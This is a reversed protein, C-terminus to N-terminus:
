RMSGVGGESVDVATVVGVEPIMVPGSKLTVAVVFQTREVGSADQVARTSTLGANLVRQERSVREVFAALEDTSHSSQGPSATGRLTLVANGSQEPPYAGTIEALFITGGTLRSVSALAGAWSARKGLADNLDRAVRSMEDELKEGKAAADIREDLAQVAPVQERERAALTEQKKMAGMYSLAIIGLALAGGCLTAIRGRRAGLEERRCSSIFPPIVDRMAIADALDGLPDEIDADGRDGGTADVPVDLYATLAAALGRISAGPGVLRISTRHLEGDALAFRLTQRAEVGFRQIASQLLPLVAEARLGLAPDLTEGKKPIGNGFLIRSPYLQTPLQIGAGTAGRSIAEILLAYGIDIARVFDLGKANQRLLVTTHEGVYMVPADVDGSSSSVERCSRLAADAVALKIPVCGLPSMGARRVWAGMEDISARREAATLLHEHAGEGGPGAVWPSAITEWEEDDNSFNQRLSLTAARLATEGKTPSAFVDALLSPGTYAVIARAGAQVGLTECLRRMPEDLPRLNQQWAAEWAGPALPVRDARIVEGGTAITAGRLGSPMLAIVVQARSLTM